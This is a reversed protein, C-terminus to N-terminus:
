TRCELDQPGRDWGSHNSNCHLAVAVTRIEWVKAGEVQLNCFFFFFFESFYTAISLSVSSVTCIDTTDFAVCETVASFKRLTVEELFLIAPFPM